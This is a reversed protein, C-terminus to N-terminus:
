KRLSAVIRIPKELLELACHIDPVVLDASLLTELATGEPSMICIGIAATKVMAADNAGPGIAVVCDAGLRRVYEAKQNSEEGPQIRVAHM